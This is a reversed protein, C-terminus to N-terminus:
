PVPPHTTIAPPAAPRRAAASNTTTIASHGAHPHARTRWHRSARAEAAAAAKYSLSFFMTGSSTLTQPRMFAPSM